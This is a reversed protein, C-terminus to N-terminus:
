RSRRLEACPDPRAAAATLWAIDYLGDRRADALEEESEVFGVALHPLAAARLLAPVGYDKRVHGNGAILAYPRGAPPPLGALTAAMAADRARQALRLGPLRAADLENCHGQLLSADLRAVAAAPLPAAALLPRLDDPVAADGGAAIQRAVARPVNGGLLRSRGDAIGAFLPQTLPWRWAKADFGAAVLAAALSEADTTGATAFDVQRGRDLHEAVVVTPGLAALLRGRLEHHRVNDHREGLLVREASRLRALAEDFGLSAGSAVDVIREGAGAALSALLLAVAAM